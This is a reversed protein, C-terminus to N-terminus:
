NQKEDVCYDGMYTGKYIRNVLISDHPLKSNAPSDCREAQSEVDQNGAGMNGDGGGVSIGAM